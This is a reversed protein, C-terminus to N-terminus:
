KPPELELMSITQIGLTIGVAEMPDKRRRHIFIFKYVRYLQEAYGKFSCNFFQNVISIQM